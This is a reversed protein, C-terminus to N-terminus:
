SRSLYIVANKWDLNKQARWVAGLAHVLGGIDNPAITREDVLIVGGHEINQEGWDKLLPVITAQDYTVLTWGRVHAESLLMDDPAGAFRGDQWFLISEIQTRPWKARLQQAVRPSLHEDLLLKLM